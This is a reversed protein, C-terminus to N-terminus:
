ARATIGRQTTMHSGTATVPANPTRRSPAHSRPVPRPPASSVSPSDSPPPPPPPRRRGGGGLRRRAGARDVPRLELALEGLEGGARRARRRHRAVGAGLLDARASAATLQGGSRAPVPKDQAAAGAATVEALRGGGGRGGAGPGRGLPRGGPARRDRRARRHAARGRGPPARSRAAARGQGGAARHPGLDRLAPLLAPPAARGEPERSWEILRRARERRVWKPGATGVVRAAIPYLEPLDQEPMLDNYGRLFGAIVPCVTPPHDSFREGSLMSALEVVCAGRDPSAHKGRRITVTQHSREPM